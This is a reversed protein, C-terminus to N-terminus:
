RLFEDCVIKRKAYLRTLNGGLKSNQLPRIATAIAEANQDHSIAIYPELWALVGGNSKYGQRIKQPVGTLVEVKKPDELGALSFEVIKRLGAIDQERGKGTECLMAAATVLPGVAHLQYHLAYKARKMELPLSGDPNADAIMRRITDGSWMTMRENELLIGIQGVALGAWARLNNRSAGKTAEKDFFHMTAEARAKLWAEIRVRAAPNADRVDGLQAYGIAIGGLRSPVALKANMTGLDSLANATAWKDVAAMVCGALRKNKVPDRRFSNADRILVQVFDDVPALSRTVEADSEEDIDSRTKSDDKYRSGFSLSVVPKPIPDCGKTAAVSAPASRFSLVLTLLLLWGITRHDMNKM